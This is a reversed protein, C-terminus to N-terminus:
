RARGAWRQEDQKKARKLASCVFLWVLLGLCAAALLALLLCFNPDAFTFLPPTM